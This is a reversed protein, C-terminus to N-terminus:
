LRFSASSKATILLLIDYSSAGNGDIRAPCSSFGQPTCYILSTIIGRGAGRGPLSNSSPILSRAHSRSPYTPNLELGSVSNRALSPQIRYEEMFWCFPASKRTCPNTHEFHVQRRRCQLLHPNLAGQLSSAYRTAACDVRQYETLGSTRCRRNTVLFVTAFVCVRGM